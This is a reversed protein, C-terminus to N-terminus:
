PGNTSTCRRGSEDDALALLLRQDAGRRHRRQHRRRCRRAEAAELNVTAFAPGRQSRAPAARVHRPAGRPCDRISWHGPNPRSGRCRTPSGAGPRLHSVLRRQRDAVANILEGWKTARADLRRRYVFAIGEALCFGLNLTDPDLQLWDTFGWATHHL